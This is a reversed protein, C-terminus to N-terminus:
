QGFAGTATQRASNTVYGGSAAPDAPNQAAAAGSLAALAAAIAIRQMMTEGKLTATSSNWSAPLLNRAGSPAYRATASEGVSAPHFLGDNQEGQKGQEGGGGAM